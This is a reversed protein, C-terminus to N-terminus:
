DRKSAQNITKDGFVIDGSIKSDTITAAKNGDSQAPENKPLPRRYVFISFLLAVALVCLIAMVLYFTNESGFYEVVKEDFVKNIFMALIFGVVAVPGTVTLAKEWFKEM